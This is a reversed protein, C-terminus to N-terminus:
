CIPLGCFCRAFEVNPAGAKPWSEPIANITKGIESAAELETNRRFVAHIVEQSASIAEAKNDNLWIDPSSRLCGPKWQGLMACGTAPRGGNDVSKSETSLKETQAPGM